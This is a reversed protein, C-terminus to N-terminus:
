YLTPGLFTSCSFYYMEWFSQLIYSFSRRNPFCCPTSKKTFNCFSLVARIVATKITPIIHQSNDYVSWKEGPCLCLLICTTNRMYSKKKRKKFWAALRRNVRTAESSVSLDAQLLWSTYAACILVCSLLLLNVVAFDVMCLNYLLRLDSINKSYIPPPFIDTFFNFPHWLDGLIIEFWM